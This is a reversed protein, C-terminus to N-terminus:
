KHTMKIVDGGNVSFLFSNGDGRLLDAGGYIDAGGYHTSGNGTPLQFIDTYGGFTKGFTNTVVVLIRPSENTVNKFFDSKNWGDENSNYLKTLVM